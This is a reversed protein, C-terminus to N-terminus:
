RRFKKKVTDNFLHCIVPLQNILMIFIEKLPNIIDSYATLSSVEVIRYSLSFCTLIIDQIDFCTM